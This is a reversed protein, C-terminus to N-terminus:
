LNKEHRLELPITGRLIMEAERSLASKTSTRKNKLTLNLAYRLAHDSLSFPFPLSYMFLIVTTEHIHFLYLNKCSAYAM